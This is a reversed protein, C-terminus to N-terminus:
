LLVEDIMAIVSNAKRAVELRALCKTEELYRPVINPAHLIGRLILEHCLAFQHLAIKGVYLSRVDGGGNLYGILERLGRLYVVDKTFGGGRFLRMAMMFAAYVSLGYDKQLLRHTEVFSAGNRLCEIALVRCAVQHLRQATLGNCLYESFVALGEQLDEYHATGTHLLQFPQARGNHFTVVHTGIEHHLAAEVRSQSVKASSSILFHGDVVLLGAVDDRVEVTLDQSLGKDAYFALEKKALAAFSQSDLSSANLSPAGATAEAIAQAEKLLSPEPAGYLSLSDYLFSERGREGLLSLHKETEDRKETFLQHLAPDEIDNFPINFLERKLTSPDVTLPRYLFEPEADQGSNQFDRWAEAVNVPTLSLLLDYSDNIRGLSSDVEFVRQDIKGPGLEHFHRPRFKTESHSFSYVTERLVQTLIQRVEKLVLPFFQDSAPDQYNPTIELGLPIVSKESIEPTILPAMGNPAIGEEYQVKITPSGGPWQESLISKELTELSQIPAHISPAHIRFGIPSSALAEAVGEDSRPSTWIEILLVAGFTKELFYCISHTLGRIFTEQRADGSALLFSAQPSILSATGRDPHDVPHRYVCLFPQQHDVHLRGWEPLKHDIRENQELEGIIEQVSPLESFPM